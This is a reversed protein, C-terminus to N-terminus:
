NEALLKRLDHAVDQYEMDSSFTLRLKGQRDIVYVLASHTEGGDLVVVGYANWVTQLQDPTGTLGLFTPNFTTVYKKLADANDRAPDTTIMLVQVDKAQAGIDQLAQKLKAMTLPCEDPCNTFGFFVLAIKGQQSDLQFPNGNSDTLVIPAAAVPPTIVVGRFSESKTFYAILAAIIVLVTLTGGLMLARREM